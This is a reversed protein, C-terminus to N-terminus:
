LLFLLQNKEQQWSEGKGLNSLEIQSVQSFRTYIKMQWKHSKCESHDHFQHAEQM